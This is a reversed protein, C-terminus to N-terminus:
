KDLLDDLSMPAEPEKVTTPKGEDDLGFLAELSLPALPKSAVGGTADLVIQALGALAKGMMKASEITLEPVSEVKATCVGRVVPEEPGELFDIGLTDQPKEIPVVDSVLTAPNWKGIERNWHRLRADAIRAYTDDKEIGIFDHGTKLCAIGTTGSGIFPDLIPGQDTPIGQLLFEDIEIPKVTNHSMGVITQFTPSGDVSLNWVDGVYPVLTVKQVKNCILTQGNERHHLLSMALPNDTQELSLIEDGERLDSAQVWVEKTGWGGAAVRLVLFPHNDSALTPELVGLVHIEFLNPSTYPHQSVHTVLHYQGDESLVKDGVKIEKIPRWGTETRVRADPHLCPHTCRELVEFETFEEFKDILEDPIQDRSIGGKLMALTEKEDGDLEGLLAEYVDQIEEVDKGTWKCKTKQGTPLDHIGANRESTSAKACYKFKPNEPDVPPRLWCISDRIEFGADELNCVGTHGTPQIDPAVLLCHGGPRLCRLMLESQEPTPTGQAIIGHYHNEPLAAFDTIELEGNFLILCEGGDPIIMTHLYELMEKPMKKNATTM